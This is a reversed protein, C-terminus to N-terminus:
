GTRSPRSRRRPTGPGTGQDRARGFGPWRTRLAERVSALDPLPAPRPGLKLRYALAMADFPARVKVDNDFYVFVDRGGPRLPAPPAVLRPNTPARGRAWARVRHAWSALAADTYGSVYLEADGHLRVYVFDASVDEMAPWTGATDAVVLAIRWRRLLEVFRPDM